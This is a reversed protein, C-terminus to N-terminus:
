CDYIIVINEAALAPREQGEVEIVCGATIRVGGEIIDVEQISQRLRVRSGVPVPATYRVRNSGYNVGRGRRAISYVSRALVPILSLTLLGHVITRGGPLERGAREVDIHIWNDDGTIRAFADVKDQDVCLWDSVGIEKGVYRQLDAPRELAIM